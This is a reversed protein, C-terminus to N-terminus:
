EQDQRARSLGQLLESRPEEDQWRRRPVEFTSTIRGYSRGGLQGVPRLKDLEIHSFDADAADERVWFRTARLLVMGAAPAAASKGGEAHGGLEKVDVVKAEISFVSERVRSPRVTAAPAERLGSIDWESVGPPADISTANVAEIMDESVTNIVCEGTDRLNRYSDPRTAIGSVLLRYNSIMPRDPACPDIERHSPVASDGGRTRVGQGYTWRPNSTM